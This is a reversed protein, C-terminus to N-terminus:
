ILDNNDAWMMFFATVTCLYGIVFYCVCIIKNNKTYYKKNRLITLYRKGGMIQWYIIMELIIPIFFLLEKIIAIKYFLVDIILLIGYLYLFFSLYLVVFTYFIPMDRHGWRSHRHHYVSNCFFMRFFDM